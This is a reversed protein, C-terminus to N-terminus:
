MKEFSRLPAVAQMGIVSDMDPTRRKSEDSGDYSGSWPMVKPAEGGHPPRVIMTCTDPQCLARNLDLTSSLQFQCSLSGVKVRM